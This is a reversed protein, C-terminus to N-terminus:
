ALTYGAAELRPRIHAVFDAPLAYGEDALGADDPVCLILDTDREGDALGVYDGGQIQYTGIRELEAFMGEPHVRMEQYEEFM